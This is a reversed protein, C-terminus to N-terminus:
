RLRQIVKFLFFLFYEAYIFMVESGVACSRQASYRSDHFRMNLYPWDFFVHFRFNFIKFLLMSLSLLSLYVFSVCPYLFKDTLFSIIWIEKM